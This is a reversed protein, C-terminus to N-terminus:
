RRVGSFIVGVTEAEEVADKARLELLGALGAAGTEDADVHGAERALASAAVLREEGVVVPYGGTEIMGRVIAYWDYTEDDLIGHAVSRPTTEWPWMFQSKHQAAYVLEERVASSGAHVRIGDAVARDGGNPDVGLRAALRQALREWARRLPHAGETQVAHIRPLAVNAGLRQADRFALICASALAGGGVQVFLRDLARGEDALQDIMEWGLTEGGEITLGNDTGQCCFPMAGADVASRFARYCPDGTVGASRRCVHVSAGLSALAAVVVGNADAPIFVDLPKGWARAVHAAALAANGCSAIALRVAGGNPALGLRARVEGLIALGMLHRAKHSGAVNGTENKVWVGGPARLRLARSLEAHLGGPTVTFGRGSVHEVARDLQAVLDVFEGDTMGRSLAFAHAFLLARYRIFPNDAGGRPFQDAAGGIDRTVVHDVDGLGANPCRFPDGDPVVAGCGQCTLTM